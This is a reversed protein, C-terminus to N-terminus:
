VDEIELSQLRCRAKGAPGGRDKYRGTGQCKFRGVRAGRSETGVATTFLIGAPSERRRCKRKGQRAGLVSPNPNYFEM